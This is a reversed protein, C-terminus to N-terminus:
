DIYKKYKPPLKIGYYDLMIKNFIITPRGKQWFFAGIVKDKNQIFESYRTVFIKHNYICEKPLSSLTDVFIIDADLCNNIFKYKKIYKPISQYEKSNIYIQVYPNDGNLLEVILSFLSAKILDANSASIVFVASIFFLIIKKM